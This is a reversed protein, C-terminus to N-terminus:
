INKVNETYKNLYFLSDVTQKIELIKGIMLQKELESRIRLTSKRILFGRVVKQIKVAALNMRLDNKSKIIRHFAVVQKNRFYTTLNLSANKTRTKQEKLLKQKSELLSEFDKLNRNELSSNLIKGSKSMLTKAKLFSSTKNKWSNKM